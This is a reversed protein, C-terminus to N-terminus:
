DELDSQLQHLHIGDHTRDVRPQLVQHLKLFRRCGPYQSRGLTQGYPPSESGANVVM